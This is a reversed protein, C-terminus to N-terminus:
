RHRRRYAARGVLVMFVLFSAGAAVFLLGSNQQERPPTEPGPAPQNQLWRHLPNNMPMDLVEAPQRLKELVALYAVFPHQIDADLARKVIAAAGATDGSQHLWRALFLDITDPAGPNPHELRYQRLYAARNAPAGQSVAARLTELHEQPGNPEPNWVVDIDAEPEFDRWEWVLEDGEWRYDAPSLQALDVPLFDPRVRIVAHGIPGKWVSGTKLIYGAWIDGNSYFRHSGWYTNRVVRTQGEGFSVPWTMWAPYEVNGGTPPPGGTERKVEVPEGDVWTKFDHLELDGARETPNKGMPFGMLVTRAPGDNTFTFTLDAQTRKGDLALIVKEAVMQITADTLPIVTEGSRGLVSDDARAPFVASLLATVLMLGVLVAPYIHRFWAPRSRTTPVPKGPM